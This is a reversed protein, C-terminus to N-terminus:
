ALQSMQFLYCSSVPFLFMGDAPITIPSFGVSWSLFIFVGVELFVLVPMAM